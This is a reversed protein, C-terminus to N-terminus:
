FNVWGGATFRKPTNTTTDIWIKNLNNDMQDKTPENGAGFSATLNVVVFDSVELVKGNAIVPTSYKHYIFVSYTSSTGSTSTLIVSNDYYVNAIPNVVINGVVTTMNAASLMYTIQSSNPNTVRVKSKFYLKQGLAYQNSTTQRFQPYVESGDGICYLTKNSANITGTGGTWGATGQSFDGNTLITNFPAAAQKYYINSICTAKDVTSVAVTTASKTKVACNNGDHIALTVSGDAHLVIGGDQPTSGKYDITKGSPYSTMVGNEYLFFTDAQETTESFNKAYVNETAKIIGYTADKWAGQKANSIANMIVPTAILAIVALIVIVALLEILTFGKKNM